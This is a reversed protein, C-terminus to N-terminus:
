DASGSGSAVETAPFMESASVLMHEKMLSHRRFGAVVLLDGIGIGCAMQWRGDAMQRGQGDPVDAFAGPM